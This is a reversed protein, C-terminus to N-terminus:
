EVNPERMELYSSSSLLRVSQIERLWQEAPNSKLYGHGGAVRVTNVAITFAENAAYAQAALAEDPWGSPGGAAVDRLLARASQLSLQSEALKLAIAQHQCVPKGFAVRRSSYELAWNTAANAIGLCVAGSLIAGSAQLEIRLSASDSDNLRCLTDSSKFSHEFHAIRFSLDNFALLEVPEASIDVEEANAAFAYGIGQEGSV